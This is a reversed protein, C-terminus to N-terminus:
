LRWPCVTNQDPEAWLSAHFNRAVNGAGGMAHTENQVHVIPVPAEPSIRDVKGWIYRDLM